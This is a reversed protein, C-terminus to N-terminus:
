TYLLVFIFYKVSIKKVVFISRRFKVSDLLFAPKVM